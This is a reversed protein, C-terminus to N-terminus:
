YKLWSIESCNRGKGQDNKMDSSRLDGTVRVGIIEVREQRKYTSCLRCRVTNRDMIQHWKIYCRRFVWRKLCDYLKYNWVETSSNRVINGNKRYPARTTDVSTNRRRVFQRIIIIIIIMIRGVDRHDEEVDTEPSSAMTSCQTCLSDAQVVHGFYQLKRRKVAALLRCTPKNLEM